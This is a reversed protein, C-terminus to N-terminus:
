GKTKQNSYYKEVTKKIKNKLNEQVQVNSESVPNTEKQPGKCGCGM